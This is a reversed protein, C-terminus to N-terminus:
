LPKLAPGSFLVELHERELELQVRGLIDILDSLEAASFFLSIDAFKFQVEDKGASIVKREQLEQLFYL